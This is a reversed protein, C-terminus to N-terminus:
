EFYHDAREALANMSREVRLRATEVDENRMVEIPDGYLFAARTFPIPVIM